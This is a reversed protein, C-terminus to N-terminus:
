PLKPGVPKGCGCQMCLLHYPEVHEQCSVILAPKSKEMRISQALTPNGENDALSAGRELGSDYLSELAQKVLRGLSAPTLMRYHRDIKTLLDKTRTEINV